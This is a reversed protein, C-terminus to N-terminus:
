VNSSLLEDSLELIRDAYKAKRSNLIRKYIPYTLLCLAIGLLGVLIGIVMFDFLVEMALCMGFGLILSCIIGFTYAFIEAPVKVKKDLAKLEELSSPKKETYMNRIREIENKNM